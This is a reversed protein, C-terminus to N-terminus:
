SFNDKVYDILAMESLYEGRAPYTNKMKQACIYEHSAKDFDKQIILYYAYMLRKRMIYNKETIKVYKKLEDDYVKDIDEKSCGNMIMCFMMDCKCENRYLSANDENNAVYRYKKEALEFNHRNMLLNAELITAVIGLTCNKEEDTFTLINDPIDELIVGRYQLANILMTKYIMIRDAPSKKLLILNYGDTGVGMANTPILNVIGLILSVVAILIFGIKFLPNKFILIFPICIFTTLFNFFIGGFNYWFYPINQPNDVIKYTLICQGGTGAINFKKRVFKGNEKVITFNGVRFSVFEYGTLLGMILHGLEHILPALFFSLLFMVILFLITIPNVAVNKGILKDLLDMGFFGSFGGIIAFIILIPNFKSRKKKGSM